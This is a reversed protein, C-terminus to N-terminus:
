KKKAVRNFLEEHRVQGIIRVVAHGAELIKVNVQNKRIEAEDNVNKPKEIWVYSRYRGWRDKENGDPELWVPKGAILVRLFETAEDAGPEGIEPADLGIFRVREGSDLEFTDGDIIRVATFKRIKGTAPATEKNSSSSRATNKDSTGTSPSAARATNKDSSRTSNSSDGGAIANSIKNKVKKKAKRKFKSKLNAILSM